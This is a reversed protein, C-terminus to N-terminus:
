CICLKFFIVQAWMSVPGAGIPHLVAQMRTRVLELPSTCLVAITRAVSGAVLPAYAGAAASTILGHLAVHKVLPSRCRYMDLLHETPM